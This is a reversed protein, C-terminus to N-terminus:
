HSTSVQPLLKALSSRLDEEYDGSNDQFIVNGDKDILVVLPIGIGNFAHLLTDGKDHYNTWTFNHRGLYDLPAQPESDEDISFVALNSSRYVDALKAFSPMSVLCPGCWTAWFDILIPRGRYSRLSTSRGAADILQLEPALYSKFPAKIPLHEDRVEETSVLANVLKTDPPPTFHFASDPPSIDLNVVPYTETIEAHFPVHVNGFILYNSNHMVIKRFVHTKKDIWFTRDSTLDSQGKTAKEAHVVYCPILQGNLSLTEDGMRTANVSNAALPELFTIVDFTTLVELEGATALQFSLYPKTGTLPRRLYRKGDVWYVWEMTGDSVQVWSGYPSRVEVRFRNGTGRITTRYIKKWERKLENTAVSEEIVEVHFNGPQAYTAAVQKLLDNATLSDPRTSQAWSFTPLLLLVFALCLNM